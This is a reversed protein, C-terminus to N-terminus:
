RTRRAAARVEPQSQDGIIRTIAETCSRTTLTPPPIAPDWMRGRTIWATSLGAARGGEIDALPHDGVMWGGDLGIGTLAAAKHFIRPDPKRVGVAGSIVSGCVHRDLGTLALKAEQQQADGNTVVVSTWGAASAATLADLVEPEVRIDALHEMMLAEVISDTSRTLTYRERIEQALERRPRHGDRDAEIVWEAEHVDGGFQTVIRACWTRFAAARDLLTNDLDLLLLSM